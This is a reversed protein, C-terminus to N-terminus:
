EASKDANLKDHLFNLVELAEEKSFSDMRLFTMYFLGQVALLCAMAEAKSNQKSKRVEDFRQQFWQNVPHEKFDFSEFALQIAVGFSSSAPDRTFFEKAWEIFTACVPDMNQLPSCKEKASHYRTDLEQAHEELLALLLNEKKKFYYLLTGKALGSEAALRDFSLKAAGETQVIHKATALALAKAPVGNEDVRLPRGPARKQKTVPKSQIECSM